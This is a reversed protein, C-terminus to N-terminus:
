QATPVRAAAAKMAGERTQEIHAGEIPRGDCVAIKILEEGSGIEIAATPRPASAGLVSRDLALYQGAGQTFRDGGCVLTFDHTMWSVEGMFSSMPTKSLIFRRGTVTVGDAVMDGWAYLSDATEIFQWGGPQQAEVPAVPALTGLLLVAALRM